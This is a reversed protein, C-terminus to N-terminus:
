QGAKKLKGIGWAALGVVVALIGPIAFAWKIPTFISALLAAFYPPPNLSLLTVVATNELYDFLVAGVLLLNVRQLWSGPAFARQFFWSIALGYGLGYALPYFLDATLQILRYVSRGTEGYADVAALAQEPTYFFELDLPGTGNGVALALIAGAYPMVGFMFVLNLAFAGLVLWGNTSTKNLWDSIKLLM